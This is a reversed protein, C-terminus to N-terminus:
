QLSKKMVKKFQPTLILDIKEATLAAVYSLGPVASVQIVFLALFHQTQQTGSQKLTCKATCPSFTISLSMVSSTNSDSESM